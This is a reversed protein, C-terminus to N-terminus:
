DILRARKRPLNNQAREKKAWKAEKATLSFNENSMNERAHDGQAMTPSSWLIGSIQRPHLPVFTASPKSAATRGKLDPSHSKEVCQASLGPVQTRHVSFDEPEIATARGNVARGMDSVEPGKDQLIDQTAHELDPPHFRAM